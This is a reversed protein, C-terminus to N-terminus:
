LKRGHDNQQKPFPIPLHTFYSTFGSGTGSGRDFRQLDKRGGETSEKKEFLHDCMFQGM